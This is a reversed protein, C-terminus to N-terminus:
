GGIVFKSKIETTDILVTIKRRLQLQYYRKIRGRLTKIQKANRIKDMKWIKIPPANNGNIIQIRIIRKEKTM